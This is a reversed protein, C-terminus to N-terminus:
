ASRGLLRSGRSGNRSATNVVLRVRKGRAVRTRQKPVLGGWVGHRRIRGGPPVSAKEFAMATGLCIARVQCASCASFVRADIPEGLEPFFLEPDLRRIACEARAQWRAPRRTTM